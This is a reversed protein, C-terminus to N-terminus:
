NKVHQRILAAARKLEHQAEPLIEAKDYEFLVDASLEFRVEDTTKLTKFSQCGVILALVGFAYISPRYRKFM